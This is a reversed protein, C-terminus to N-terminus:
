AAPGWLVDRAAKDKQEFEEDMPRSPFSQTGDVIAKANTGTRPLVVGWGELEWQAWLQSAPVFFTPPSYPYIGIWGSRTHEATYKTAKELEARTLLGDSILGSGSATGKAAHGERTGGVTDNLGIRAHRLVDGMVGAVIPTAASTGSHNAKDSISDFTPSPITGLGFSSVDVPKGSAVIISEDEACGCYPNAANEHRWTAGVTMVWEPGTYPSTYTSEPTVFGNEIGNGAAFLVTQGRAVAARTGRSDDLVLKGTDPFGANGIRGWSNSVLDIWPQQLAWDLGGTGEVAVLLCRACSGTTNGVAVGASATGHGNEDLINGESEISGGGDYAGIIKTGPIWYLKNEPVANWISADAAVANEYTSVNLSLNLATASAPYEEIYTSPHISLSVSTDPYTGASFEDHYPNIGTDVVAVVVFPKTSNTGSVAAIPEVDATVVLSYADDDAIFPVVRFTWTGGYMDSKTVTESSDGDAQRGVEFGEWDVYLDLDPATASTLAATIWAVRCAESGIEATHTLVDLSDVALFEEPGGSATGTFTQSYDSCVLARVPPLVALSVSAALFLVFLRRLSNM